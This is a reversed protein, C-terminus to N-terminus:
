SRGRTRATTSATVPPAKTILWAGSPWGNTLQDVTVSARRANAGSRRRPRPTTVTRDPQLHRTLARDIDDTQQRDVTRRASGTRRKRRWSRRRGPRGPRAAATQLDATAHRGARDGTRAGQLQDLDRVRRTLTSPRRFGDPARAEGEREPRRLRDTVPPANTILWAGSPWGSTLQDVTVAASRRRLDGERRRQVAGIPNCTEPPAGISTTPRNVTLPLKTNVWNSAEVGNTRHPAGPSPAAGAPRRRRHRRTGTDPAPVNCNTRIVLM